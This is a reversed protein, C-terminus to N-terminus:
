ARVAAPLLMTFTSGQGPQSAVLIEGGHAAVIDRVIALGVGSGKVNAAAAASGRVFKRFITKKESEAIGPGQDRVRIAVYQKEVGWEVWVTPREPSYKIANDVLNRLAVSIAEPDAEIACAEDSGEMRIHRGQVAAQTEFEAVVRHVLDSTDVEEFHYLRAGAEMRGFNLLAEVLRQLRSTEHVLTDYYMQRREASPVRGLALIESLQRMATLPSRFEHSVAAVFDSQMRSVEIERRIARAIFYTGLVLFVVMVVVVLLLFRQSAFLSLGPAEPSASVYLTWPIQSEAATRVAVHGAGRRGALMRGEADAAAYFIGKGASIHQFISAPRAIWVAQREGAGRWLLFLPQDGVWVTEQQRAQPDRQRGQWALGAAESFAMAEAPPQAVGGALRAAESWYFEFQGRTLRWRGHLLDQQLAEAATRSNSLQAASSRGVLEAPAGAVSVGALAALKEYVARSEEPRNLKRLVRGIRLLAGARTAADGSAALREYVPLAKAPLAQQFESAEAEDFASLNTELAPFASPDYLLRDAPTATLSNETLVLLLGEPPERGAPPASAWAGLREGTEALTGRLTAAIRDAAQDLREQLRQAEVARQQDLLKWGFWGLASVSVLTLLFLILLLTRPPKLWERLPPM